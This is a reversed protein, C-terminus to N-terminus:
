HYSGSHAGDLPWAPGNVMVTYCEELPIVSHWTLPNTIAYQSGPAMVFKAVETLGLQRDVSTGIMM